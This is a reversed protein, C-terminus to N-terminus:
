VCPRIETSYEAILPEVDILVDAAPAYADPVTVNINIDRGITTFSTEGSSEESFWGIEGVMDCRSTPQLAKPTEVGCRMVIAPDGWALARDEVVDRKEHGSLTAPAAAVLDDCAIKAGPETAYPAVAVQSSCGGLGLVALLALASILHTRRPM